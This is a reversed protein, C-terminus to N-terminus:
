ENKVRLVEEITTIGELSKIFGDQSMTIMGEAIAIKQIESIPSKSVVASNLKESPKLAEFIGIRSIFGTDNCKPCGVPKYLTLHQTQKNFDIKITKDEGYIKFDGLADLEEHIAKVVEASAEFPEKCDCLVRVLRQAIVLNVTSTLLFSEVGMDMLRAFAGAASNTHITSLVLRGILASQIALNATESDRIEGVMIVDPDQRLISRLGSAFTLGVEANVQTQNIGDIKIEVPDELTIINVESTNLINLCSALTQTKGSGTPGTVLIVGQTKKLSEMLRTYSIGSIGTEELNLIGKTKELLRMVIKEGFVEPMISVRIDIVGQNGANVQFRGDQPVRHEDIKLNSLIKIRTVVAPLLKKPITLKETLIGRIRFRVAIKGDRPEIHVDSAKHKIGYDLIMNVIRIIPADDTLTTDTEGSIFNSENKLLITDGVEALAQDVESGIQAGYKTEITQLIDKESAYYPEIQKGIISQLYQIKQLDLPDKMAIKVKTPLSEFVIAFNSKARSPNLLNLTEIDIVMNRLDAYGMGRMEAYTRYLNEEDIFGREVLVEDIEKATNIAEFKATNFQDVNILGKALLADLINTLGKVVVKTTTSSSATPVPINKQELFEKTKTIIGKSTQNSSSYVQSNPDKPIPNQKIELPTLKSDNTNQVDLITTNSQAQISSGPKSNSASSQTQTASNM